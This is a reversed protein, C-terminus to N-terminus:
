GRAERITQELAYADTYGTVTTVQAHPNVVLLTPTQYIQIDRTISGFSGVKNATTAHVAVSHGLKHAVIQVQKHVAADSSSSPNWFLLLVVKHQKLEAAVTAQMAPVAPSKASAGPAPQTHPATAPKHTTTTTRTTTHTISTHTVSTHPATPSAHVAARKSATHTVSTTHHTVTTTHHTVTTAHTQGKTHHAQATVHSHTAVHSTSRAQAPAHPHPATPHAASIPASSGSSTTGPRHLLAFWAIAFLVFAALVVQFPRSIQAM